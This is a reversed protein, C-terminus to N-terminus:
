RVLSNSPRFLLKGSGYQPWDTLEVYDNFYQRRLYGLKHGHSLLHDRISDQHITSPWHYCCLACYYGYLIGNSCLLNNNQSKFNNNKWFIVYRYCSLRWSIWATVFHFFKCASKLPNQMDIQMCLHLTKKSLIFWCFIM